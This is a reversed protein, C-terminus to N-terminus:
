KKQKIKKTKTDSVALSQKLVRPSKRKKIESPIKKSSRDNTIVIDPCEINESLNCTQVEQKPSKTTKVNTENELESSILGKVKLIDGNGDQLSTHTLEKVEHNNIKDLGMEMPESKIIKGPSKKPSRKYPSKKDKESSPCIDNNLCEQCNPGIPLCITQGFGVMLHNVESWLEFPLWSQLAKRTDEPTSTSKKVWGIRNSIRHVHTDVGIGTVKNWAVKMCIHAMKPGVGTLKCLKDVSDPIDGDYQDKLTQTTKKIYKVKTKWFGVPYILQGLEEDSMDLINDVTLGKARLREMAAFTVQDKTQSSLMLSILSQYRMVKPPADEDMSMHCGMSDVPADNNARMNRLNILFERWKPPEWLGEQDQKTPSEKDFEIKVPPKKEFKFKNLDLMIDTSSQEPKNIISHLENKKLAKAVAVSTSALQKGKKPPM